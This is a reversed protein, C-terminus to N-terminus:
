ELVARGDGGGGTGVYIQPMWVRRWERGLNPGSGHPLTCAMVVADGPAAVVPVSKEPIHTTTTAATATTAGAQDGGGGGCGGDGGRVLGARVAADRGVELTGNAPGVADLPVWVSAYFLPRRDTSSSSTTAEAAAAAPGAAKPEGGGDAGLLYQGDTHWAFGSAPCAPPKVIFQENLLRISAKQKGDEGGDEKEGENAASLVAEGLQGLLHALDPDTRASAIAPEDRTELICGRYTAAWAPGLDAGGAVAEDRARARAALADAAGALARVRDAPIYDRVVALGCDRFSAAAAALDPQAAGM